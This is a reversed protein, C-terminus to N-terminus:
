GGALGSGLVQERGRGAVAFGYVLTAAAIILTVHFAYEIALLGGADLGVVLHLNDHLWWNGLAWSTALHAARTLGPRGPGTLSRVADLGFLLFALAAGFAVSTILGLLMFMGVQAGSPAPDLEVPPPWLAQGLPAQPALLFAAAAAAITVTVAKTRTTM